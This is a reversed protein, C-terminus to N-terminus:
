ADDGFRYLRQPNTVLLARRQAESPAIAGLLDVLVGDDPVHALNPHPWDTGWLVRDGLDELLARAYPIADEYPPGRRSARESGSLKIWIRADRALERLKRFDSQDIGRSADIRAMHDIVVPVPSRLLAPGLEHVLSSEFHLQLHWGFRALRHGFAVIEEISATARLHPMFHFRVGRFGAADLRALEADSVSVPALAIGVYAGKRAAIADETVANDFGHANSQVVVCREIGLRAHLAFLREKPAECPTFSREPAFPFRAQPGFVHVHADCAGPPLSLRPRTPQPLYSLAAAMRTTSHPLENSSAAGRAVRM